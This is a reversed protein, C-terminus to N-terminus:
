TPTDPARRGGRLIAAGRARADDVLSLVRRVNGEDVIHTM